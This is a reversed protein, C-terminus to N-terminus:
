ATASDCPRHPTEKTNLRASYLEARQACYVMAGRFRKSIRAVWSRAMDPPTGRRDQAQHAAQVRNLAPGAVM